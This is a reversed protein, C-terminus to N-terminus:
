DQNPRYTYYNRYNVNAPMSDTGIVTSVSNSALTFKAQQIAFELEKALQSNLDILVKSRDAMRVTSDGERFETLTYTNAASMLSNQILNKSVLLELIGQYVTGSIEPSICGDIANGSFCTGMYGNLNNLNAFILYNVQGSSYVINSPDNVRYLIDTIIGSTVACAM